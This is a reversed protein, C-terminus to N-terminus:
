YEHGAYDDDWNSRWGPPSGDNEWHYNNWYDLDRYFSYERYHDSWYSAAQFAIIPIDVQAAYAPVYVRRAQHTFQIHGGSAWGRVGPASVDCWRYGAVCGHITLESGAGLVGGIPFRTSPGSRLNLNVGSYGPLGSASADDIACILLLAGAAYINAWSKM